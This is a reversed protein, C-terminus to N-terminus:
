WTKTLEAFEVLGDLPVNNGTHLPEFEGQRTLAMVAVDASTEPRVGPLVYTNQIVAVFSSGAVATAFPMTTDYEASDLADSGIIGTARGVVGVAVAAAPL